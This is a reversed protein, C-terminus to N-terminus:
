SNFKIVSEHLREAIMKLFTGDSQTIQFSFDSVNAGHVSVAAEWDDEAIQQLYEVLQRRGEQIADITESLTTNGLFPDIPGLLESVHEEWERRAMQAYMEVLSPSTEMPKAELQISPIRNLWPRQAELEDLLFSLQDIILTRRSEM